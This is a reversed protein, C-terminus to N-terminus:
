AGGRESASASTSASTGASAMDASAQSEDFRQQVWAEVAEMDWGVRRQSLQIPRPFKGEKALRYISSRRLSTAQEVDALSGIRRMKRVTPASTSSVLHM